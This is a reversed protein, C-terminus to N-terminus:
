ATYGRINPAIFIPASDTEGDEAESLYQQSM